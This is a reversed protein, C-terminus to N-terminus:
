EDLHDPHPIAELMATVARTTSALDDAPVGALIRTTEDLLLIDGKEVMEEGRSTLTVVNERRSTASVAVTLYGAKAGADLQRSVTASTTGLHDAVEQQNFTGPLMQIASLVMFQTQSIGLEARFRRDLALDMLSVLKRTEFWFRGYDAPDIHM